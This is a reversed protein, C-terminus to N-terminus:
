EDRQYPCNRALTSSAGYIFPVNRRGEPRDNEDAGGHSNTRAEDATARDARCVYERDGFRVAGGFVRQRGRDTLSYQAAREEARVREICGAGVIGIGIRFNTDDLVRM